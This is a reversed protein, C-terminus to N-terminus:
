AATAAWAVMAAWVATAASELVAGPDVRGVDGGNATDCGYATLALALM